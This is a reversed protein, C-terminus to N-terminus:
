SVALLLESTEPTTMERTGDKSGASTEPVDSVLVKIWVLALIAFGAIVAASIKMSGGSLGNGVAYLCSVLIMAWYSETWPLLLYAGAMLLLTPTAAAKRGYRDM